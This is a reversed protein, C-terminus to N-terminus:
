HTVEKWGEDSWEWVQDYVGDDASSVERVVREEGEYSWRQDAHGDRDFDLHAGTIMDSGDEQFLDVYWSTGERADRELPSRLARGQQTLLWIEAQSRVGEDVVEAAVEESQPNDSAAALASGIAQELDEPLGEATPADDPVWDDDTRMEVVDYRGDDESSHHRRIRGDTFFEWREDYREDRDFDVLAESLSELGDLQMLDVRWVRRAEVDELREAGIDQGARGLLYAEVESASGTRHFVAFYIASMAIIAGIAYPWLERRKADPKTAVLKESADESEAEEDDVRNDGVSNADEDGDEGDVSTAEKEEANSTEEESM